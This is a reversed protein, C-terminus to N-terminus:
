LKKSILTYIAQPIESLALQKQVAGLTCAAKPMGYVVCSEESQGITQAGKQKMALLGRAGDIGMGTLIVGIAAGGAYQAVSEFLVDVSPCHGNIKPGKKCEVSFSPGNKRISMHFEGPAILVRGPIVQDGSSAERVEMLCTNNLRDAYMGTFVAPMHQVIVIGPM